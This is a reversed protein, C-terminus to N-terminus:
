ARQQNFMGDDKWDQTEKEGFICMEERTSGIENDKLKQRLINRNIAPRADRPHKAANSGCHASSVDWKDRAFESRSWAAPERCMCLRGFLFVRMYKTAICGRSSVSTTAAVRLMPMPAPPVMGHFPKRLSICYKARTVVLIGECTRKYEILREDVSCKHMSRTLVNKEREGDLRHM